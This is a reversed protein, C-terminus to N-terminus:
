DPIVLTGVKEGIIAHLLNGSTFFDIVIIPIKHKKCISFAEIDMIELDQEIAETFTIKDIKKTDPHKKPDREYVGDVKTAKIIIDARLEVARIAAATDTTFYPITTGGGLIVINGEKLLEETRAYRYPEFSPFSVISSVAVAKLGNSSLYDKLYLTNILTGMMGIEDAVTHSIRTLEKGRFLNGAGIVIAIEIGREKVSHLEKVLYQLKDECFGKSGEGSLTEGSLKLLVRRYM